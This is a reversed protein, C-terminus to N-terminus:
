SPYPLVAVDVVSGIDDFIMISKYSDVTSFLLLVFEMWLSGTLVVGIDGCDDVAVVVAAGVDVDIADVADVTSTYVVVAAGGAVVVAAGSVVLLGWCINIGGAKTFALMAWIGFM